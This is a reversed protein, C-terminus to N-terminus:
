RCSVAPGTSGVLGAVTQALVRPEVPKPIHVDFGAQLARLRDTERAQATLAAAPLRLGRTRMERVFTYGDEGPMAIDVLLVDCASRVLTIRAEAASAASSVCAGCHELAMTVMERAGADDDVILVRVGDLAPMGRNDARVGADVAFPRTAVADGRTVVPLTVAFVTGQGEGDSTVRVTGGHLEVLQRVIALGLGLGGHPRTTGTKEQNFRDFVHPLFDRHIGIGTDAVVITVQHDAENRALRVSITGHETFKVANSALNWVIQQLCGPDGVFMGDHQDIAVELKLGKAAAAPAVVNMADQVIRRLDVTTPEIRLKGTLIRAMDLLDAILQTQLKASDYIAEV